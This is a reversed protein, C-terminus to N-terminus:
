FKWLIKWIKNKKSFNELFKWFHNKSASMAILVPMDFVILLSIKLKTTKKHNFFVSDKLKAGSNIIQPVSHMLYWNLDGKKELITIAAHRRADGNSGACWINETLEKESEPYGEYTPFKELNAGLNENQPGCHM